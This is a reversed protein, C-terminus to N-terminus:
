ITRNRARVGREIAATVLRSLDFKHRFLQLLSLEEQSAYGDSAVVECAIAYATERLEHPLATDIVDLALDIGDPDKLMVVCEQTLTPLRDLDFSSFIPLFKVMESIRGVEGDSMRGDSASALVMVFILAGHTDTERDTGDM